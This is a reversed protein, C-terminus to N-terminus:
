GDEMGTGPAAIDMEPFIGSNWGASQAAESTLGGPEGTYLLKGGSDLLALHEAWVSATGSDSFSLLVAAGRAAEGRLFSRVGKERRGDFIEGPEECVWFDPLALALSVLLLGRRESDSLEWVSRGASGSFSFGIREELVGLRDDPGTAKSGYFDLEEAVTTGTFIEEGPAPLYAVTLGPEHLGALRAGADDTVYVRGSDPRELGALARLLATRYRRSAGLLATVRGCDIKLSLSCAPFPAV